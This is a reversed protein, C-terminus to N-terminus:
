LYPSSASIWVSKYFNGSVFSCHRCGSTAVLKINGAARHSIGSILYIGLLVFGLLFEGHVNVWFLMLLPLYFLRTRNRTAVTAISSLEQPQASDLIQFWVILLLWSQIHPRAFLHIAAAAFTLILFIFSAIVNGGRALSLRFLFAFTFAIVV